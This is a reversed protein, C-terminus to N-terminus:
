IEAGSIPPDHRRRGLHSRRPSSDGFAASLTKCDRNVRETKAESLCREWPSLCTSAFFSFKQRM